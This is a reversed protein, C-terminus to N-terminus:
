ASTKYVEKYIIKKFKEFDKEDIKNKYSMIKLEFPLDGENLPQQLYFFDNFFFGVREYFSVRRKSIDCTPPEVELFVEKKQKQLYNKLLESGVGKGRLKEDVALHEIFIFEDFEWTGLIALTENDDTYVLPKYYKNELLDKQGDFSRMESRPLSKELVNFFSNFEKKDM